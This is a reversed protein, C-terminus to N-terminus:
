LSFSFARGNSAKRVPRRRLALRAARATQVKLATDLLLSDFRANPDKPDHQMAAVTKLLTGLAQAAEPAATGNEAMSPWEKKTVASVYSVGL